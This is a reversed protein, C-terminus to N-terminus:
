FSYALTLRVENSTFHAKHMPVHYGAVRMHGGKAYLKMFEYDAKISWNNCLSWIAGLAINNGFSKSSKNNLEFSREGKRRLNWHGSGEYKLPFICTYSAYMSCTASIATTLKVGLEPGYWIAKYTSNLGHAKSCKRGSSSMPHLAWGDGGCFRMRQTYASYGIYPSVIYGNRVSFAKGFRVLVDTTYEGSITHTSHSYQGKRDDFLYDDDVAKGHFIKGYAGMAQLFYDNKTVSVALRTIYVDVNKFSLESLINPKAHPGSISFDQKEYRYGQSLDLDVKAPEAFATATFFLGLFIIPAKIM